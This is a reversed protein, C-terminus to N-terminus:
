KTINNGVMRIRTRQESQVHSQFESSFPAAEMGPPRAFCIRFLGICARLLRLRLRALM